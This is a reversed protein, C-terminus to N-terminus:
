YRASIINLISIRQMFAEQPMVADTPQFGPFVQSGAGAPTNAIKTFGGVSAPNPISDFSAMRGGNAYSNLEGQGIKFNEYRYEAGAAVNLTNKNVFTFGRSIDANITNQLFTCNAPMSNPRFMQQLLWHLM